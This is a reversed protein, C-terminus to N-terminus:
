TESEEDGDAADAADQSSARSEGRAPADERTKAPTLEVVSGGAAEIKSRASASFRHAEVTLKIDIEGDGLIKVPLRGSKVIGASRLSEVTVSSGAPLKALEGVNVAEYEVRFRNTFGRLRSLGRILPIQGGEFGVRLDPGSRSKQGKIGRGSYTGHGSSNGRGIRKKHHTSGPVPPLDNQRM